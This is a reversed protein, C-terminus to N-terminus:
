GKALPITFSVLAGGGERAGAELEGGHARAIARAIALGLGVGGTSRNRSEDGRAFRE